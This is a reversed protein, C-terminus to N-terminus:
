SGAPPSLSDSVARRRNLIHMVGYAAMVALLPTIMVRARSDIGSTQVLLTGLLFYLCPLCLFAASSWDRQRRLHNLGIGAALLVAINWVYGPWVLIGSVRLLMRYLGVPVTLLYYTPHELFVEMAVKTMASQLKPSGAYHFHRRKATIDATDNGLEAEVRRALEAYVADIEQGTAQHLVSAARYYLLNYTGITTFSGNDLYSANHQTWLGVGLMAPLIFASAALLRRGGVIARRAFYAWLAMPIWLLYAGPRTLASLVMLSGSMIGWSLAALPRDAARLRILALFSLALLLNALPEALLVGSYKVSTPDVAVILASLLSLTESLGFQNALRHTIPVVCTALLINVAIILLPELNLAAALLPFLPPRLLYGSNQFALDGRLIDEALLYYLDYDGRHYPLLSPEYIALAFGTRLILGLLTILLLRRSLM